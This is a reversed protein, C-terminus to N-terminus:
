KSQTYVDRIADVVFDPQDFPIYESSKDTFLQKAGTGLCYLNLRTGDAAVLQGSHAYLHDGAAASATSQLGAVLCTSVIAALVKM